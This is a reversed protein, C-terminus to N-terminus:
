KVFTRILFRGLRVPVAVGAVHMSGCWERGVVGELGHWSGCWGRGVVGVLWALGRWSGCGDREVVAPMGLDHSAVSERGAVGAVGAFRPKGGM